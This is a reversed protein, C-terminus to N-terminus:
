RYDVWDVSSVDLRRLWGCDAIKFDRILFKLLWSLLALSSKSKFFYNRGKVLIEVFPQVYKGDWVAGRRLKLMVYLLLTSNWIFILIIQRRPKPECIVCTTTIEREQKAYCPSSIYLTKFRVHQAITKGILDKTEYFFNHNNM